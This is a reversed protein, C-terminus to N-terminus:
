NFLARNAKGSLYVLITAAIAIGIIQLIVNDASHDLYIAILSLLISGIYIVITLSLGWRQQSWLGYAAALTIIGVIAVIVTSTAVDMSFLNLLIFPVGYVLCLVGGFATYAVIAKLFAPKNNGGFLYM